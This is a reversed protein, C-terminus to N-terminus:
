VTDGLDGGHIASQRVADYKISETTVDTLEGRVTVLAHYWRKSQPAIVMLLIGIAQTRAARLKYHANHETAQTQHHM